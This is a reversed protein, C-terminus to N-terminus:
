APQQTIGAITNHVQAFRPQGPPTAGGAAPVIEEELFRQIEEPSGWVDVFVMGEDSVAAIHSVGPHSAGDGSHADMKSTLDDYREPTFGEAEWVLLVSADTGSGQPIHNHVPFFRPQADVGNAGLAAGLREEFFRNIAEESEWVDAVILTDGEVAALHSILGEPIDRGAGAMENTRDYTDTSMGPAEIQMLIPM